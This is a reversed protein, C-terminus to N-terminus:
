SGLQGTDGGYFPSVFLFFGVKNLGNGANKDSYVEEHFRTVLRLLEVYACLQIDYPHNYQSRRYWDAANRVIFDEKITSPKGLQTSTSRDLNFCILWTRTRNLLEREHKESTPKTSSPQHLNLDTAIRIALGLYLWSRDEEWRRAPVSYASMLLYAQCLEVSKFGDILSSAAATKAFHMAYKYIHSKPAYYRSSIACVVTFLFPCRGFTRQPTHIVPDLISLFPNIKDYFIKFLDEVESPTVLGHVLIEPTMTKEVLVRRLNLNTAPGPQFYEQNAVGIDNENEDGQEPSKADTSAAPGPSHEPLVPLSPKRPTSNRLSLNAILGLPAAEEPLSHLKGKKEKEPHDFDGDHGGEADDENAAVAGDDDEDDEDREARADLVFASPRAAGAARVSNTELRELWAQVGDKNSQADPSNVTANQPLVLNLPTQHVPNNVQKLLSEIIAEKQRLQTLLFERKNPGSRPKRGEVVCQHGGSKCRRCTPSDPPVFECRMKLRKCYRCAGPLRQTPKAGETREEADEDDDSEESVATHAPEFSSKRKQRKRPVAALDASAKAAKKRSASGAQPLQKHSSITNFNLDPPSQQISPAQLTYYSNTPPAGLNPASTSTPSVSPPTPLYQGTQSSPQTYQVYPQQQQYSPFQNQPPFHQLYSQMDMEGDAAGGHVDDNYFTTTAGIMTSTSSSFNHHANAM